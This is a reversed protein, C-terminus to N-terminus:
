DRRGLPFEWELYLTNVNSGGYTNDFLDASAFVGSRHHVSWGFFLKDLRRSRLIDGVSVDVSFELYNLLRSTRRNKEEAKQRELVPIGGAYSLGHGLGIRTEIRDSWPFERYLAKFALVGESFNEQFDSEFRRAFGLHLWVELPIGLARRALQRGTFVSALGTDIDSCNIGGRLIENFRTESTCGYAIRLSTPTGNKAALVRNEDKRRAPPGNLAYRYSLKLSPVRKEDVVPSDVIDNRFERFAANVALYHRAGLRYRVAVGAAWSGTQGLEYAPRVATAESERVGFYYDAKEASLWQWELWPEVQWNERRYISAWRARIDQGDHVGEVDQRLEVGFRGFRTKRTLEVGAEFAHSREMGKLPDDEDRVEGTESFFTHDNYGTLAYSGFIDVQWRDTDVAHWGFDTTDLFLREGSYVFTPMFDRRKNEGAFVSGQLSYAVGLSWTGSRDEPDLQRYENFAQAQGGLLAVVVLPL